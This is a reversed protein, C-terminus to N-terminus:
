NTRSCCLSSGEKEKRQKVLKNIRKRAGDTEIGDLEKNEDGSKEPEVIYSDESKSPSAEKPESAPSPAVGKDPSGGDELEYEVKDTTKSVDLEQYGDDQTKTENTM